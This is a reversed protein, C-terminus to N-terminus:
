HETINEAPLMKMLDFVEAQEQGEQGAVELVPLSKHSLLFKILLVAM